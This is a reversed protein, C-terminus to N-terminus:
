RLLDVVVFRICVSFLVDIVICLMLFFGYVWWGVVGNVVDVNCCFVLWLSCKEDCCVICIV